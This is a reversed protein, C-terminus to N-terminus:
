AEKSHVVENNLSRWWNLLVHRAIYHFCHLNIPCDKPLWTGGRTHAALGMFPVESPISTEDSPSPPNLMPAPFPIGGHLANSRYEYVKNLVKKIESRSWNLRFWEAAPRRDPEPPMHRLTFDLFKKTAGFCNAIIAAVQELHRHGGAEALLEGLEPRWEQLRQVQTAETQFLDNAGIEIASVLMLWAINPEAEATWLADQYFRAARVLNVYRECAVNPISKLLELEDMSHTGTVDPLIPRHNRVCVIPIPPKERLTPHGLPDQGCEFRRSEGGARVRIGMALSMLAAIEDVLTGGHYLSADTKTMQPRYQDLHVAVRLIVAASVEGPLETFPVTNLFQYPGFGNTQEGTIHADSFFPFECISSPHHKTAINHWNRQSLLTGAGTQPEQQPSRNPEGNTM